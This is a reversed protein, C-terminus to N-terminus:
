PSTSGSARTKAESADPLAPLESPLQDGRTVQPALPGQESVEDADRADAHTLRAAASESGAAVGQLVALNERPSDLDPDLLVARRYSREAQDMRGLRSAAVGVNNWATALEPAIRTARAFQRQVRQWPVPEGQEISQHIIEYGLNNYYHAAAQIDNMRRYRWGRPLEGTFDIFVPGDATLVVVAIHGAAIRLTAEERREPDRTADLYFARLGVSRALGVLLSSLGLCNGGGSELTSTASNNVAWRYSLGLGKRDSLFDVLAQARERDTRLNAVVDRAQGVAESPVEFPV